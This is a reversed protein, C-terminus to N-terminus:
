RITKLGDFRWYVDLADIRLENSAWSPHTTLRLQYFLNSSPGVSTLAYRSPVNSFVYQEGVTTDIENYVDMYVLDTEWSSYATLGVMTVQKLGPPDLLLPVSKWQAVVNTGNDYASTGYRYLNSEGSRIFYMTDGPYHQVLDEVGYEVAAAFTMSWTSWANAREDYVYTTDGISLMYKQDHYHAIAKSKDVLSLDRFNRLPASVLEFASSRDRFTGETERVVGYESLYYHGLPSAVHSKPAICGIHGNVERRAWRLDANQWVNFSSRNKLFRVGGRYPFALVGDDGDDENLSIFDFAGWSAASDLRSFYLRSGDIGFMRGDHSFIGRLRTSPVNYVYSPKTQLSDWRTSDTFAVSDPDIQAVLRFESLIITDVMLGSRWRRQYSEPLVFEAGLYDALAKLSDIAQFVSDHTVELIHARWLNRIVGSDGDPVRPIGLRIRSDKAAGSFDSTDNWVALTPGISSQIGTISDLNTVAYVVALTDLQEVIGYYIGASSDDAATGSYTAQVRSIFTPAGYRHVYTGTSDMGRYETDVLKISDTTSLNDDAVSDIVTLGFLLSDTASVVTLGTNFVYDSEDIRGPNAKTRYIFLKISDTASTVSDDPVWQFSTLLVQGSDVWVPQTVYSKIGSEFAATDYRTYTLMYRYEGHMAGGSTLPVIQPEGPASLPFPRAVEGNYVVGRQDGNVIFVMDDYMAFDPKSQVSFYDWVRARVNNVTSDAQATDLAIASGLFEVQEHLEYYDGGNFPNTLMFFYPGADSAELATWLGAYIEGGTATSDSTYTVVTTDGGYILSDIYTYNNHTNYDIHYYKTGTFHNQGKPSVWIAGWGVNASDLVSVLQQQGDSYYAAYLGVASDQGNVASVSDYGRRKTISGVYKGFDIEHAQRCANPQVTLDGDATNLGGLPGIRFREAAGASCALILVLSIIKAVRKM